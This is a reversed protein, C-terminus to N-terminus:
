HGAPVTQRLYQHVQGNSAKVKYYPCDPTSVLGFLSIMLCHFKQVVKQFIYLQLVKVEVPLYGAYEHLQKSLM